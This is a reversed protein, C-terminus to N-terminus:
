RFIQHLHLSNRPFTFTCPTSLIRLSSTCPDLNSATPSPAIYIPHQVTWFLIFRLRYAPLKLSGAPSSGSQPQSFLKSQAALTACSTVRIRTKKSRLHHPSALPM